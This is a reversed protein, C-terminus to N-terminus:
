LGKKIEELIDKLLFPKKILKLVNPAQDIKYNEFEHLFGSIVIIKLDPKVIEFSGIAELGHWQPMKIDMLVLDFDETVAKEFGLQGNSATDAQYHNFELTQKLMERISKDDDIVLIRKSM